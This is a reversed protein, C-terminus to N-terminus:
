HDPMIGHRMRGRRLADRKGAEPLQEQIRIREGIQQGLALRMEDPSAALTDIERIASQVAISQALDM